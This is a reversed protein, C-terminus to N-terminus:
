TLPFKLGVMGCAEFEDCWDKELHYCSFKHVDEFCCQRTTCKKECAAFTNADFVDNCVDEIQEGERLNGGIGGTLVKCASYDNCEETGLAALCSSEISPDALCCLRAECKEHCDSVFEENPQKDAGLICADNVVIKVAYKDAAKPPPMWLNDNLAVLQKCNAYAACEEERYEECGWKNTETEEPFCCLHAQCKNFCQEIGELTKLNDPSCINNISNYFDQERSVVLEFNNNRFSDNSASSGDYFNLGVIACAKYEDCWDKEMGYCSYTPDTEFCCSRKTCTEKCASFEKTDVAVKDTCLEDADFNKEELELADHTVGGSENVLQECLSFLSCEDDGVIARCSSQLKYDSFCCLRTACVSHCRTVLEQTVKTPDDGFYCADYVAKETQAPTSLSTSPPAGVPPTVLRKCPEYASCATPLRDSCDQEALKADTTFCCLHAQCKSHCRQIGDLTELSSGSCADELSTIFSDVESEVNVGTSGSPFYANNGLGSASNINNTGTDFAKLDLEIFDKVVGGSESIMQECLAFLECEEDGVAERCSAELKYGSFCCFRSKCVNYCKTVLAETVKTEDSGFYCADYVDKEIIEDSKQLNISDNDFKELDLEIFNDVVGGNVSIMFECIAYLECEEDGVSDRCSAELKYSSFCCFRSKCVDICNKVLQQTVKTEDSGFYCADYVAKEISDSMASGGESPFTLGVVECSKYEDCWDKEIEYCSYEPSEFCCSRKDACKDLCAEYLRDDETVKSTCLQTVDSVNEQVEGANEAELGHSTILQKCLSYLNCEDDGVTERCSSQLQYDSFCCLRTACVGHCKTVMDDTIELPDSVGFHCADWVIKEIDEPELSKVSQGGSTPTVLRQCPEYASCAAPHKDSCDDQALRSDATFCCLHAQCKNHCTYIGEITKLSEESCAEELATVFEDLESDSGTSSEANNNNIDVQSGETPLNYYAECGAYALCNKAPDNTCGNQYFCCLHDSCMDQCESRGGITKLSSASCAIDVDEALKLLEKTTGKDPYLVQCAKYDECNLHGLQVDNCAYEGSFCCHAPQCVNSCQLAGFQAIHEAKCPTSVDVVYNVEDSNWGAVDKLHNLHECSGYQQCFGVNSACSDVNRLLDPGFYNDFLMEIPPYSLSIFCCVGAKCAEICENPPNLNAANCKKMVENAISTTGAVSSSSSSTTSSSSAVAHGSGRWSEAVVACLDEYDDCYQDDVVNCDFKDPYCCRSPRCVGACNDFAEPTQLSAASCVIHLNSPPADLIITGSTGSEDDVSHLELAM